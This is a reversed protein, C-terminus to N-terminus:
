TIPYIDVLQLSLQQLAEWVNNVEIGKICGDVKRALSFLTFLDHIKLRHLIQRFMPQRISWIHHVQFLHEITQGQMLGYLLMSLQRIERLFSWLVLAPAVGTEQLYQLIHLSRVAKGQFVAEMLSFLEFQASDDIAAQIQTANIIPIEQLDNASYLLRLKEVAQAAALLNGETFAVLQSLADETLRLGARTLRTKLWNPFHMFSIPKLVLLTATKSLLQFGNIKQLKNIAQNCNVLLIREEQSVSGIVANLTKVGIEPLLNACRLEILSQTQFLSPKMHLQMLRDWNFYQDVQWTQQDAIGERKAAVRIADSAEQLLLPETSSLLYLPVLPTQLHSELQELSTLLISM